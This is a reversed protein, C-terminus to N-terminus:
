RQEMRTYEQLVAEIISQSAKSIQEPTTYRGLTIRLSGDALQPSLGIAHLVHSRTGKNAACASGTAVYVQKTELLFVLREGDIGPFSIHLHGALRKKPHGSIVADPFTKLLDAQLTDRLETLRRHEHKSHAAAHEAATAFGIVGAVNETGSRLNREQGGGVILPTIKVSPKTWLL